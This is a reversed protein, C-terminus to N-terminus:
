RRTPLKHNRMKRSRALGLKMDAADIESISGLMPLRLKQEIFETSKITKDTLDRILAVLCGVILGVLLGLVINITPRPSVPKRKLSGKSIVSVNKANTMIKTVKEQFVSVTEDALARALYPDDAKATVSLVQSNQNNSIKIKKALNDTNGSVAFNRANLNKKVQKMVVDKTIIDKYTNIMQLDSQIQNYQANGDESRKQNVLILSSSQYQPTMVFYTVAVALVGGIGTMLLILLLHKRLTAMLQGLNIVEDNM